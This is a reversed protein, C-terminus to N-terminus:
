MPISYSTEFFLFTTFILMDELSLPWFLAIKCDMILLAQFSAFQYNENRFVMEWLQWYDPEDKRFFFGFFCSFGKSGFIGREFQLSLSLVDTFVTARLRM